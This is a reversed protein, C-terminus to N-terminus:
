NLNKKYLSIYSNLKVSIKESEEEINKRKENLDNNNYEIITNEKMSTIRKTNEKQSFYKM